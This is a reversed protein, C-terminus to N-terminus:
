RSIELVEFEIAGAPVTAVAVEGVAKGLLAEGVPSRVSIKGHATDTEVPSVLIYTFEKKTKKNLVRVTAGVYAKSTDIDHDEFTVSRAIKDELDRMRAHLMAQEEKAAHYDANERLDGFERAREIIGAVVMRRAKCAALEDKLKAFGEESVYLKDMRSISEQPKAPSGGCM